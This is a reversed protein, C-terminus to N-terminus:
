QQSSNQDLRILWPRSLWQLWLLWCEQTEALQAVTSVFWSYSQSPQLQCDINGCLPKRSPETTFLRGAIGSVWLIWTQYRFPFSHGFSSIAVWKLIRAQFVGHVSYGPPSCDLPDWLFPRPQAVSCLSGCAYPTMSETSLPAALSWHQPIHGHKRQVRAWPFGRLTPLQLILFIM